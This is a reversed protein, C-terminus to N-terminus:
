KKNILKKFNYLGQAKKTKEFYVYGLDGRLNIDKGMMIAKRVNKFFIAIISKVQKETLDHKIMLRKIYDENESVKIKRM